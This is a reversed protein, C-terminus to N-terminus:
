RSACWDVAAAAAAAAAAYRLFYNDSGGAVPPRVDSKPVAVTPWHLAILISLSVIRVVVVVVIPCVAIPVKM